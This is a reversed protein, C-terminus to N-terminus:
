EATRQVLKTSQKEMFRELVYSMGSFQSGNNCERFLSQANYKINGNSIFSGDLRSTITFSVIFYSPEGSSGGHLRRLDCEWELECENVGISNTAVEPDGSSSWWAPIPMDRGQHQHKSDFLTTSVRRERWRQDRLSLGRWSQPKTPAPIKNLDTRLLIDAGGAPTGTRASSFFM